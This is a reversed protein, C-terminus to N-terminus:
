SNTSKNDTSEITLDNEDFNIHVVNPYLNSVYPLNKSIFIFIFKILKFVLRNIFKSFEYYIFIVFLLTFLSGTINFYLLFILIVNKALRRSNINLFKNQLILLSLIISDILMFMYLLNLIYTSFYYCLILFIVFVLSQNHTCFKIIPVLFLLNNTKLYSATQISQNNLFNNIINVLKLFPNNKNLM